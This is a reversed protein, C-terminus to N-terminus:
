NVQSQKQHQKVMRQISKIARYGWLMMGVMLRLKGWLSLHTLVSLRKNTMMRWHGPLCRLMNQNWIVLAEHYNAITNPYPVPQSLQNKKDDNGDGVEISAIMAASFAPQCLVLQQITIQNGDFVPRVPRRELGNATCDIHLVRSSTPATGKELVIQDADIRTVRGLRIINPIRRLLQIEEVTVTGCRCHQTDISPDIRLFWSNAEFIRLYDESDAAHTTARLTKPFDVPFTDVNMLDRNFLWPDHSIVWRIQAPDVEQHLLELIADIGTKGAGIVVYGDWSHDLDSLANIPVCHVAPDVQYLPERESPISVNSYTADVLRRQITAHFQQTHDDLSHFQGNGTYECRPFFQVRGTACLKDMVRKYYAVIQEKSAFEGPKNELRESNVGYFDAPQHLSVFSYANNWHGGPGPRRDIIIVRATRTQSILEDVFAMGATGAGIVLYDTDLTQRM